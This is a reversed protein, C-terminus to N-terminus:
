LASGEKVMTPKRYRKLTELSSIIQDYKFYVRGGIKHKSIRGDKEWQWLTVLSVRLLEATEQPTLLKEKLDARKHSELEARVIDRVQQMLDGIPVPTLIMTADM